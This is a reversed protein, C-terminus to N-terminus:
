PILKRITERSVALRQVDVLKLGAQGTATTSSSRTLGEDFEEIRREM